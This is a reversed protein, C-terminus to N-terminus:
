AALAEEQVDERYGDFFARVGDPGVEDAAAQICAPLVEVLFQVAEEIKPNAPHTAAAKSTSM